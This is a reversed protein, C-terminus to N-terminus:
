VLNPPPIFISASILDHKSLNEFIILRSDKEVDLFSMELFPNFTYYKIDHKIEEISSSRTNSDECLSTGDKDKELCAVITPGALFLVFFLLVISAFVKM